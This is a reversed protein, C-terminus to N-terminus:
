EVKIVIRTSRQMETKCKCLAALLETQADKMSIGPSTTVRIVDRMLLQLLKDLDLTPACESRVVALKAESELLKSLHETSNELASQATARAEGNPVTSSVGKDDTVTTDLKGQTVVVDFTITARRVMERAIDIEEKLCNREDFSEKALEELSERMPASVLKSYRGVSSKSESSRSKIGQVRDKRWQRSVYDTQKVQNGHKFRTAQHGPTTHLHAAHKRWGALTSAFVRNGGATIYLVEEM